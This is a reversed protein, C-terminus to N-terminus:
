SSGPPPPTSSGGSPPTSPAPPAAAGSPPSGGTTGQNWAAPPANMPESKKRRRSLLVAAIAAAIVIVVIAGILAYAETPPLGLVTPAKTVTVTLTKTVKEGYADKVTVSVTYTGASAFTHSPSAATSTSSDGFNWAYSLSPTGGTAGANFSVSTTTTPSLTSATPAAALAPNVTWSIHTSVHFGLSDTVNFYVVYTGTKVFTFAADQTAASGGHGGDGFSWSYTDGGSGGGPLGSFMVAGNVDSGGTANATASATLMTDVTVITTMTFTRGFADTVTLSATYSGAATYDYTPNQATSTGQGAGFSWAYTYPAEGLSPNSTFNVEAVGAQDLETVSPTATPAASVNENVTIFTFNYSFIDWFDGEYVGVDWVGPTGISVDATATVNVTGFDLFNGYSIPALPAFFGYFFAYTLNPGSGSNPTNYMSIEFTTGVDVPSPTVATLFPEPPIEFVWTNNACGHTTYPYIDVSYETYNIYCSGGILAPAVDTSNTPMAAFASPASATVNLNYVWDPYWDGSVYLYTQDTVYGYQDIGGVLVLANMQGDWTMSGFGSGLPYTLFCSGFLCGVGYSEYTTNNWESDTGFVWTDNTAEYYGATNIFGGSFFVLAETAPDYALESGFSWGDPAGYLSTGNSWGIGSAESFLYWTDGFRDNTTNAFVNPAGNVYFLLGYYSDYAASGWVTSPGTGVESSINYWVGESFLYTFPNRHVPTYLTNAYIGGALISGGWLPDYTFTEGLLPPPSGFFHYYATWNTWTGNAYIWTANSGCAGGWFCNINSNGGFLIVERLSPDYSAVANSQASFGGGVEDTQNTWNLDSTNGTSYSSPRPGAAQSAPGGHVPQAGPSSPGCSAATGLSDCTWALGDAPGAGQQLSSVASQLMSPGSPAAAPSVSVAAPTVATSHATLLNAASFSGVLILAIAIPALSRYRVPGRM